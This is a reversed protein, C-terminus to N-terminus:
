MPGEAMIAERSGHFMRREEKQAYEVYQALQLSAGRAEDFTLEADPEAVTAGQSLNLRIKVEGAINGAPLTGDIRSLEIKIRAEASQVFM